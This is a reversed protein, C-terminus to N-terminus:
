STQELHGFGIICPEVPGTLGEISVRAVFYRPCDLALAFSYMYRPRHWRSSGDVVGVPVM